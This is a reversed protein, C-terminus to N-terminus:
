CCELTTLVDKFVTDYNWGHRIKDACRRGMERREVPHDLYWRLQTEISDVDTPDCALAYCPEVFTSTWESLDSVLLPLGSAMCDFPKNSAGVMHRMNINESTKPMLSLAVDAKSAAKLLDKRYPISGLFEIIGPTGNKAAVNILKEVYGASGATEYGALRLRVAGHFRSAAVVLEPPVRSVNISGHYWIILESGPKSNNNCEVEELRPCNWVCLTPLMRGTAKLFDVLREHQPVICLEVERGLIERCALVMRMFRSRVSQANPADHEHYIMRVGTLKRILWSTPLALPDSVYIWEPRWSCTWFLAWLFFFIYLGGYVGGARALSLNKARIRPHSPLKLKQDGFADTGLLVVNWGRDALIGSSHEIPPYFAPDGFQVYLIRRRM